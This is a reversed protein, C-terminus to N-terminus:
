PLSECAEGDGDNDLNHIDYGVVAMCHDYCAQAQVRTSFDDCNLTDGSCSCTGSPQTPTRTATPKGTNTRTATPKVTNTRTPASIGTATRTPTPTGTHLATATRTPTVSRSPAQTYTADVQLRYSSVVAYHGNCTFSLSFTAVQGPELPTSYGRSWYNSGVVIGSSDYLTAVVNVSDVASGHDNRVQGVIQYEQTTANYGGSDNLITVQPYAKGGYDFTVADFEYYSWNAPETLAMHFSTREGAPLNTPWIYCHDTDVLQGGENFFVATVKVWQLHYATNNLVEGVLQLYPNFPPMWSNCLYTCHNPLIHVGAPFTPTRTPTATTPATPTATSTQTPTPTWTETEIQTATSRETPTATATETLTPKVLTSDRLLLPLYVQASVLAPLLLLIVLLLPLTSCGCGRRARNIAQTELTQTSGTLAKRVRKKAQTKLSDGSGTVAKRLARKARYQERSLLKEAFSKRKSM